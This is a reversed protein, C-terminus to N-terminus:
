KIAPLNFQKFHHKFHRYLLADWDAKSMKGFTPHMVLYEETKNFKSLYDILTSRDKDLSTPKSYLYDDPAKVGKPWPIPSYIVFWKLLWKPANITFDLPREKLAIQFPDILHPILTQATLKGWIPRTDETLAGISRIILDQKDILKM